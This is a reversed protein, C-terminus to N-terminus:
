EHYGRQKERNMERSKITQRKDHLKKGKGIGLEIKVLGKANFYLAIPTLTLGKENIKGMIRKIETKHMLLKRPRKPEHNEKNAQKYIAINMNHLWLEGEIFNGYAEAINAKGTRLSKVESGHLVLGAEYTELIEYEYRAKKNTVIITKPAKEKKAM